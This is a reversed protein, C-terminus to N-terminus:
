SESELDIDAIIAFNISLFAYTKKEKSEFEIELLDIKRTKGTLILYAAVVPSCDVEGAEHSLTKALANGSGAPIIGVPIDIDEGKFKREMLANVIEHIIGDGSNSILGHYKDKPLTLTYEYAHQYHTTYMIDYSFFSLKFLNEVSAWIKKAKGKGGYPNIFILLKKKNIIRDVCM